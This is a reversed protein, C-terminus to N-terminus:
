DKSLFLYVTIQDKEHGSWLHAADLNTFNDVLTLFNLQSALAKCLFFLHNFPMTFIDSVVLYLYEFIDHSHRLSKKLAINLFHSFIAINGIESASKKHM